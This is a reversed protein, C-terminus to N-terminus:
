PIIAPIHWRSDLSEMRCFLPGVAALAPRQRSSSLTHKPIPSRVRLHTRPLRLHADAPAARMVMPEDTIGGNDATFLQAIERADAYKLQLKVVAIDNKIDVADDTNALAIGVAMSVLLVALGARGLVNV